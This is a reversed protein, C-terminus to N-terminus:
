AEGRAALRLHDDINLRINELLIEKPTDREILRRVSELASLLHLEREDAAQVTADWRRVAYAYTSHSIATHTAEERLADDVRADREERSLPESM